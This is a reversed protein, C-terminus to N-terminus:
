LILRSSCSANASRLWWRAAEAQSAPSNSASTTGTGSVSSVRSSPTRAFEEISASALSLGANRASPVTM